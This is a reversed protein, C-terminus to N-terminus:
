PAMEMAVPLSTGNCWQGINKPACETMEDLVKQFVSRTCMSAKQFMNKDCRIKLLRPIPPSLSLETTITIKAVGFLLLMKNKVFDSHMLCKAVCHLGSLFEKM